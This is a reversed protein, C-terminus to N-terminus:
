QKKLSIRNCHYYESFVPSGAKKMESKIRQQNEWQQWEDVHSNKVVPDQYYGKPESLACGNLWILPFVIFIKKM